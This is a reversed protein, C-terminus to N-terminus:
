RALERRRRYSRRERSVLLQQLKDEVIKKKM